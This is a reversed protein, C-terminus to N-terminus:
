EDDEFDDEPRYQNFPYNIDMGQGYPMTGHFPTTGYMQQQPQYYQSMDMMEQGQSQPMNAGDWMNSTPYGGAPFHLHSPQTTDPGYTGILQNSGCGCDQQPMMPMQYSMPYHPQMMPTTMQQPMTPYMLQQSWQEMAPQNAGPNMDQVGQVPSLPLQVTDLDNNYDDDFDQNDDNYMQTTNMPSQQQQWMTPDNMDTGPMQQSMMGANFDMPMQQGMMSQDFTTPMQQGMMSQDFGQMNQGMQGYTGMQPQTMQPYGWTAPLTMAPQYGGWGGHPFGIPYCPMPMCPMGSGPLVPTIPYCPPCPMPQIYMQPQVPQQQVIPEEKAPEEEIPEEKPIEQLQPLEPMEKVPQIPQPAPQQQEINMKQMNLLYYNNIDIEPMIPQPPKPMYIPKPIEKKVPKPVEKIIEKPQEKVPQQVPKTPTEKQKFPQQTIPQEKIPTEKKVSGSSTPVKIKMGPMIVDPNSLHTNMSKLQEFYVGYKQAIKWLTDGKQVIHIRM